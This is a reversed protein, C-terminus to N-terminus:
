ESKSYKQDGLASDKLATGDALVIKNLRGVTNGTKSQFVYVTIVDGPKISYKTWGILGLASPSGAEASWHTVTGKDDKVDFLAITHPNAWVFRTVVANNLVVPKSTDYVASGHHAFTPVCIALLVFVLVVSAILKIKM